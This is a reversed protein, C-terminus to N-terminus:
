IYNLKTLGKVLCFNYLIVSLFMFSTGHYLWSNKTYICIILDSLCALVDIPHGNMNLGSYPIINPFKKKSDKSINIKKHQIPINSEWFFQFNRPHPTPANCFFKCFVRSVSTMQFKRSLKKYETKFYLHILLCDILLKLCSHLDETNTVNWSSCFIQCAVEDSDITFSSHCKLLIKTYHSKQFFTEKFLFPSHDNFFSSFFSSFCVIFLFNINLFNRTNVNNNKSVQALIHQGTWPICLTALHM